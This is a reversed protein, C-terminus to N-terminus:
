VVNAHDDFQEYAAGEARTVAAPFETADKRRRGAVVFAPWEGDAADSCGGLRAVNGDDRERQRVNEDLRGPGFRRRFAPFGANMHRRIALVVDDAVVVVVGRLLWLRTKLM